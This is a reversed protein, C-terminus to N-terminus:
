EDTESIRLGQRISNTIQRHRRRGQITSIVIVILTLGYSSWVFAGYAGMELLEM